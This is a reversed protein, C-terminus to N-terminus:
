GHTAGFTRQMRQWDEPTNVNDFISAALGLRKIEPDGIILTECQGFLPEIKNQQTKLAAEAINKFGARYVACLPQVQGNVSPVVVAATSAKAVSILHDLFAVPIAPTDVALCLNWESAATSNLAAHIGGLPGQGQFLDQVVWGYASLRKKDGVLAVTECVEKATAITHELLTLDNLRLFAKDHGM